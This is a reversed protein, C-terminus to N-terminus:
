PVIGFRVSEEIRMAGAVTRACTARSLNSNGVRIQLLKACSATRRSVGQKRTSPQPNPTPPKYISCKVGFRDEDCDGM